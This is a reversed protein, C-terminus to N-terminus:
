YFKCTNLRNITELDLVILQKEILFSAWKKCQSEALKSYARRHISATLVRDNSILNSYIADFNDAEWDAINVADYYRTNNYLYKYDNYKSLVYGSYLHFETILNPYRVNTQFWEIFGPIEDIMDRVTASEFLFPVGAPGIIDPMRVNYYREVFQQSSKFHPSIGASGVCPKGYADFLKNADLPQIFWTKADLVMAWKSSSESAALLKLLQQNEWGNIRSVYNYSSYPKIKVKHQHSKWWASDILSAVNDKDNVIVTISNINNDSIYKHISEAQIRLLNLEEQFVVTILDLM